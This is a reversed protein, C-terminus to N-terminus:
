LQVASVRKSRAALEKKKKEAETVEGEEGEDEDDVDLYSQPPDTVDDWSEGYRRLEWFVDTAADVVASVSAHTHPVAMAPAAPV